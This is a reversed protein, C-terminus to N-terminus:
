TGYLDLGGSLRLRYRDLQDRDSEHAAQEVFPAYNVINLARVVPARRALDEPALQYGRTFAEKEDISLDHLAILRRLERTLRLVDSRADGSYQAARKEIEILEREEM